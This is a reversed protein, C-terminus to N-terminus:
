IKSRSLARDKIKWCHELWRELGPRTGPLDALTVRRMTVVVHWTRPPSMVIDIMTPAVHKHSGDTAIRYYDLTLDYMVPYGENRLHTVSDVFPSFRPYLLNKFVHAGM